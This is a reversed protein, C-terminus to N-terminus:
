PSVPNLPSDRQIVKGGWGLGGDGGSSTGAEVGSAQFSAILASTM